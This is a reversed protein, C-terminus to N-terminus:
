LQVAAITNRGAAKAEYLKKDAAHLLTDSRNDLKTLPATAVGISVTVQIGDLVSTQSLAQIVWDAIDKAQQANADPCIILFEEGGWRGVLDSERIATKLIDGVAVLVNDGALHGFQDNITKFHDIDLLLVSVTGHGSQPGSTLADLTNDLHLRNYIGTLPDTISTHRLQEYAERRSREYYRFLFIQATAVELFNVFAGLGLPAPGSVGVLYYLYVACYAFMLGTVVTGARPGLLFFSIPPLITVWLLSYGRAETLHILALLIFVLILTLIWGAVNFRGGRSVYLYTGAALLFSIFDFAAIYPADFLTLNLVGALALYALMILLVSYILSVQHYRPDETGINPHYKRWYKM